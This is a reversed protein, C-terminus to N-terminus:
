AYENEYNVLSLTSGDTRKGNPNRLFRDQYESIVRAISQLCQGNGPCPMALIKAVDIDALRQELLHERLEAVMGSCQTAGVINFDTFRLDGTKDSLTFRIKDYCDDM